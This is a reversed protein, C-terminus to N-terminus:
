LMFHSVSTKCNWFKTIGNNMCIVFQVIVVTNCWFMVTVFLSEIQDPYIVETEGGRRDRKKEKRMTIEWKETDCKWEIRKKQGM